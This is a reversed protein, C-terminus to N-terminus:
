KQTEAGAQILANKLSNAWSRYVTRVDGWNFVSTNQRWQDFGQGRDAAKALVQGTKGDKIKALLVMSGSNQSFTKGMSSYSRRSDERPATMRIDTVAVEVVLTGEEAESVLIFPQEKNFVKETMLHFEDAMKQLDQERLDYSANVGDSHRDIRPPKYDSAHDNTVKVPEFYLKTYQSWNVNPRIFSMDLQSNDVKVLGDDRIDASNTSLSLPQSSCATMNLLLLAMYGTLRKM